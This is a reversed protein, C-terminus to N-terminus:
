KEKFQIVIAGDERLTVKVYALGAPTPAHYVDQWVKSSEYTTMSKYFCKRTMACVCYIMDRTSLGMAGGNDIATRSFASAGRMEVAQQVDRLPYHPVHKEMIKYYGILPIQTAIGCVQGPDPKEHAVVSQLIFASIPV